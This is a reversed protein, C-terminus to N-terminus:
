FGLTKLFNDYEKKNHRSAARYYRFAREQDQEVGHGTYYCRGILYRSKAFIKHGDKQQIKKALRIAASYDQTVHTGNYYCMALIYMANPIKAKAAVQVNQFLNPDKQVEEYTYSEVIHQLADLNNVSHDTSCNIPGNNSLNEFHM